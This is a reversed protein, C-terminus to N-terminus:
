NIDEAYIVGKVPEPNKLKALVMGDETKVIWKEEPKFEGCWEENRMEPFNFGLSSSTEPYSESWAQPPYRRCQGRYDSEKEKFYFRCKGCCRENEIMEIM